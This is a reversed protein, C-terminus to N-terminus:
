PSPPSTLFPPHINEHKKSGSVKLTVLSHSLCVYKYKVVGKRSQYLICNYLSISVLKALRLRFWSLILPGSCIGGHPHASALSVATSFYTLPILAESHAGTDGDLQYACILLYCFSCSQSRNRTVASPM